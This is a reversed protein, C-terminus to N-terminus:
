RYDQRAGWTGNCRLYYRVSLHYLISLAQAVHQCAATPVGTARGEAGRWGLAQRLM